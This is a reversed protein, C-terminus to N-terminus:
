HRRVGDRAPINRLVDLDGADTRWTSFELGRLMEADLRVPLTQAEADSLGEVSLRAHLERMAAALRNLNENVGRPILDLDKTVRQAGRAQASVGGVLLYEVGHRDLTGLIRRM